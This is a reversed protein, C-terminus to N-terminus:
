WGCYQDIQSFYLEAESMEEEFEEKWLEYDTLVFDWGIDSSKYDFRCEWNMKMDREGDYRAYVDMFYTDEDHDVRPGIMVQVDEEDVDFMEMWADLQDLAYKCSGPPSVDSVSIWSVLCFKEFGASRKV